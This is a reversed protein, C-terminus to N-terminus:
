KEKANVLTLFTEIHKNIIPRAFPGIKANKLDYTDGVIKLFEEMTNAKQLLQKTTQKM